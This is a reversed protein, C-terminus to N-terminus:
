GSLVARVKMKIPSSPVHVQEADQNHGNTTASIVVVAGSPAKNDHGNSVSPHQRDEMITLVDGEDLLLRSSYVFHGSAGEREREKM